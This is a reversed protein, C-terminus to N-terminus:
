LGAEQLCGTEEVLDDIHGRLEGLINIQKARVNTATSLTEGHRHDTGDLGQATLRELDKLLFDREWSSASIVQRLGFQVKAYHSSIKFLAEQLQEVEDELKCEYKTMVRRVLHGESDLDSHLRDKGLPAKSRMTLNCSRKNSAVIDQDNYGNM